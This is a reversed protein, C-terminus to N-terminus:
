HNLLHLYLKAIETFTELPTFKTMVVNAIDITSFRDLISIIQFNIDNLEDLTNVQFLDLMESLTQGNAGNTGLSLAQYISLPSIISNEGIKEKNILNFLTSQFSCNLFIFLYSIIILISYRM